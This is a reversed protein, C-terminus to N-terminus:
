VQMLSLKILVRVNGEEIIDSNICWCGETIVISISEALYIIDEGNCCHISLMVVFFYVRM